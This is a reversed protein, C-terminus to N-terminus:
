SRFLMPRFATAENLKFSLETQLHPNKIRGRQIVMIDSPDRFFLVAPYNKLLRPHFLAYKFLNM